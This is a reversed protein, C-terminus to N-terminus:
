ARFWSLRGAEAWVGTDAAIRYYATQHAGAESVGKAFVVEIKSFCTRIPTEEVEGASERTLLAILDLDEIPDAGVGMPVTKDLPM